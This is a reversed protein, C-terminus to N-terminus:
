AIYLMYSIFYAMICGKSYTIDIYEDSLCFLFPSLISGRYLEMVVLFHELDDRKTKVKKVQTKVGNYINKIAKIYAM